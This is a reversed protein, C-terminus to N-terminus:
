IKSVGAGVSLVYMGNRNEYYHKRCDFRSGDPIKQMLNDQSDDKYHLFNWRCFNCTAILGGRAEFKVAYFLFNLLPV